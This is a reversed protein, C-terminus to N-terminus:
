LIAGHLKQSITEETSPYVIYTAVIAKSPIVSAKIQAASFVIVIPHYHNCKTLQRTPQNRCM